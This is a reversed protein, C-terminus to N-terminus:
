DLYGLVSLLFLIAFGIIFAIGRWSLGEHTDIMEEDDVLPRNAEDCKDQFCSSCLGGFMELEGGDRIRACETCIDDKMSPFRGWKRLCSQSCYVNGIEDMYRDDDSTLEDCMYGNCMYITIM